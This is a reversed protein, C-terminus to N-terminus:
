KEQQATDSAAQTHKVASPDAHPTWLLELGLAVWRM